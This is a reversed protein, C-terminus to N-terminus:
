EDKGGFRVNVLKIGELCQESIDGQINVLDSPSLKSILQPYEKCSILYTNETKFVYHPESDIPSYKDFFGTFTIAAM